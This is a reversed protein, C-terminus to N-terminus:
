GGPRGELELWEIQGAAPQPRHCRHCIWAGSRPARLRWWRSGGCCGCPKPRREVWLWVIDDDDLDVEVGGFRDKVRDLFSPRLPGGQSGLLELIEAKHLAVDRALDETMASRPRYRLKGDAAQLEIGRGRLQALLRVAEPTIM